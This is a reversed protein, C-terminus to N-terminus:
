FTIGIYCWERKDEKSYLKRRPIEPFAAKFSKGFSQINGKSYGNSTCWQSWAFFLNKISTSAKPEFNCIEDVFVTVPSSLEKLEEIAELSAKPQIFRGKETLQKLGKLAWLLIGPLEMKLKEFLDTDERNLWSTKLNLVLYRNALAGSSDTLDPLENSMMIIKAPLRVTIPIQYKRNITLLDEGSISLLREVTANYSKMNEIRVDSFIILTKNLLPQLGFETNLSGLTPGAVNNPGLLAELIRAITGKGARPPGVILLMKQYRTDQTLLYGMWEQIAKQSEIDESWLSELFKLWEKPEAAYPAFDFDLCSTNLLAPTPSILASNEDKLWDEVSLIGNRFPIVSKSNPFQREDLWITGNAPHYGFFCESKLADIIQTVRNQNPNFNKLFGMKTLVKADELFKYTTQRIKNPDVEVYQFSDWQWFSNSCFLLTRIGQTTFCRQILLKANDVPADHSLIKESQDSIILYLSKQKKKQKELDIFRRHFDKEIQIQTDDKDEASPPNKFDEPRYSSNYRYVDKLLERDEDFIKRLLIESCTQLNATKTDKSIISKPTSIERVEYTIHNEQLIAEINTRDIPATIWARYLENWRCGKLKIRNKIGKSLPKLLKFLVFCELDCSQQKLCTKPQSEIPKKENENISTELLENEKCQEEIIAISDEPNVAKNITHDNMISGKNFFGQLAIWPSQIKILITSM